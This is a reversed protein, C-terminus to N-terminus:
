CVAQMACYCSLIVRSAEHTATRQLSMDGAYTSVLIAPNAKLFRMIHGDVAAFMAETHVAGETQTLHRLLRRQAGEAAVADLTEM